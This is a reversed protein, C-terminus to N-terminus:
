LSQENVELENVFMAVMPLEQKQNTTAMNILPDARFSCDEYLLKWLHKKDLKPENPL